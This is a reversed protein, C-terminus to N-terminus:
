ARSTLGDRDAFVVVRFVTDWTRGCDGCVYTFTESASHPDATM